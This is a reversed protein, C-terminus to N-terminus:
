RWVGDGAKWDALIERGRARDQTLDLAVALLPAAPWGDVDVGTTDGPECVGVVTAVALAAVGSAPDARGYRRSAITVEVPGPVYLEVVDNGTTVVPAGFSAAAATGSRTWHAGMPDAPRAPPAAPVTALWARPTAWVGALEWFLEPLIAAGHDDVLGAHALKTVTISITSPALRLTARNKTPSLSRGPNACLWYAVELGARGAVPPAATADPRTMDPEVDVDIRVGPATLHMRGRRDLWSWGAAGLLDRADATIRDAVLLPVKGEPQRARLRDTLHQSTAYAVAEVAFVVVRDDVKVRISAGGGASPVEPDFGLDRLAEAAANVAAAHQEAEPTRRRVM